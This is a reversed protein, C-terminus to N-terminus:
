PHNHVVTRSHVKSNWMSAASPSQKVMASATGANPGFPPPSCMQRIFNRPQTIDAVFVSDTGNQTFDGAVYLNSGVFAFTLVSEDIVGGYSSASVLRPYTPQRYDFGFVRGSMAFSGVYAIGNNISVSVLAPPYSPDLDEFCDLEALPVQGLLVPAAPNAMNAVVFGGDAAALLAFEGDVAVGVVASSPQFQSLLGPTTPNAISYTLLGGTDAAIFLLSGNTQMTVPYGALSITAGAVPAAPNAVNIVVLRKDTTGAYLVNGVLALSSTPLPLSAVKSPSSPTSVDLVLLEASTGVFLFHGTLALSYSIESGLNFSNLNQPPAQSLDYTIVFPGEAAYLNSAAALLDNTFSGGPLPPEPIPGGPSSIDLIEIGSAVIYAHNGVFRTPGQYTDGNFLLATIKSNAPSSLDVVKYQDNPYPGFLALTGSVDSPPGDPLTAFSVPLGSSVDYVGSGAFLTNGYTQVPLVGPSPLVLSQAPITQLLTPPSATFDYTSLFLPQSGDSQQQSLLLFIRTDTVGIALITSLVSPNPLALAVQSPIVTGMRGDFVLATVPSQWLSQGTASFSCPIGILVGQHFSDACLEPTTYFQKLVPQGTSAEFFAVAPPGTPNGNISPATVRWLFGGSAFTNISPIFGSSLDADFGEVAGTWVPHAPDSADYADIWKYHGNAVISPLNDSLVYIRSTDAALDRPLTTQGTANASIDPYDIVRNVMGPFAGVVSIADTASGASIPVAGSDPLTTPATYLGAPSLSGGGAEITWTPASGNPVESLQLTGGTPVVPAAPEIRAPVVSFVFFDCQQTGSICGTVKDWNGAAATFVGNQTVTGFLATWTVPKPIPDGMFATLMQVSEGPTLIQRNARVRLRPLRVFPLSNSAQVPYQMGTEFAVCSQQVSFFGSSAGLPVPGSITNQASQVSTTITGPITTGNPGPYLGTFSAGVAFNGSVQMTARADAPQPSLGTITPVPPVLNVKSVGQAGANAASVARVVGPGPVNGCNFASPTFLGSSSIQGIAGYNPDVSWTVSTNSTGTVTTTFQINQSGDFSVSPNQPSVTVTIGGATARVTVIAAATKTTDEQSTTAVTVTNAPLNAPATYLGSQDVLGVSPQGGAFGNVSWFVATNATGTVTATFQLPTGLQVSGSPPSISIQVKEANINVATTGVKTSDQTSQAKITVSAPSPVASPATYLGSATITGVLANGGQMDNVFWTVTSSFSGTGQVNATFQQTAKVFLNAGGPSVTVSTITSAPPPPPADSGSSGGGCGCLAAFGLVTIKLLSVPVRFFSRPCSNIV